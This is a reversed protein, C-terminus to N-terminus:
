KQLQEQGQLWQLEVNATSCGVSQVCHCDVFDMIMVICQLKCVFYMVGGRLANSKLRRSEKLEVAGHTAVVPHYVPWVDHVFTICAEQRPLCGLWCGDVMLVGSQAGTEACGEEHM